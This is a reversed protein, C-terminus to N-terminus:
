PLHSKLHPCVPRIVNLQLYLLISPYKSSIQAFIGKLHHLLFRLRNLVARDLLISHGAAPQIALNSRNSGFFYTSCWVQIQAKSDQPSVNANRYSNWAFGLSYGNHYANEWTYAKSGEKPGQTQWEVHYLPRHPQHSSPHHIIPLSKTPNAYPLLLISWIMFFKQQEFYRFKNLTKPLFPACCSHFICDIRLSLHTRDRRKISTYGLQRDKESILILM